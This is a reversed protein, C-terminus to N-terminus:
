WKCNVMKFGDGKEGKEGKEGNSGNVGQAGYCRKIIAFNLKLKEKM